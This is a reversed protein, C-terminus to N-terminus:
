QDTSGYLQLLRRYCRALFRVGSAPIREDVAHMLSAGEFGLPVPMPTFGYNQIGLSALFRADTVGTALQPIVHAMPDEAFTVAKLTEYLGWDIETPYPDFYTVVLDHPLDALLAGLEAQIVEASAGPLLRADLEILAQDPHVNVKSGASVVTASVTNTVLPEIITRYQGLEAVALPRGDVLTQLARAFDSHPVASSVEEMMAAVPATIQVISQYSSLRRLAEALRVITGDRIPVSAHGSRGRLTLRMWCGQKEAVNIPYLTEGDIQMSPTGGEGIGYRVGDFLETREQVLFQIGFESGAEEDSVFAFILDGAPRNGTFAFSLCAAIMAAVAGKMDLAGRGWVFGDVLDGSFPSHAWAESGSPVVDVHGHMLLPPAEGRGAIRAIVNPREKHRAETRVDIGARTLLSSVFDLCEREAGPPNTTDFRILQQLLPVPDLDRLFTPDDPM